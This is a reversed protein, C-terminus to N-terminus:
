TVTSTLDHSVAGWSWPSTLPTLDLAFMSHSLGFRPLIIMYAHEFCLLGSIKIYTKPRPGTYVRRRQRSITRRTLM